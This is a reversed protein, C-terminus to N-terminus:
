RGLTIPPKGLSVGALARRQGYLRLLMDTDKTVTERIASTREQAARDREQQLAPDTRQKPAGFMGM